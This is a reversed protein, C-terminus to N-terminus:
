RMLAPTPIANSRNTFRQCAPQASGMGRNNGQRILEFAAGHFADLRRTEEAALAGLSQLLDQAHVSYVVGRGLHLPVYGPSVQDLKGNADCSM